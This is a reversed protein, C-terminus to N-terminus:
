LRCHMAPKAVDRLQLEDVAQTRLLRLDRPWQKASLSGFGAESVPEAGCRVLAFDRRHEEGVFSYFMEDLEAAFEGDGGEGVGCVGFIRRRRISVILRKQVAFSLVQRTECASAFLPQTVVLLLPDHM